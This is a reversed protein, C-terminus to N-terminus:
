VKGITLASKIMGKATNFAAINAEYARSASLMDVMENVPQINSALVEKTFPDAYPNGPDYKQRFPNTDPLIAAIEVGDEGGLLAVDKRVYPKVNGVQTSNANAINSSIIDMRFREASLGTSSIRMASNLSM